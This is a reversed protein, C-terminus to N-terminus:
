LKGKINKVLDKTTKSQEKLYNKISWVPMEKKFKQVGTVVEKLARNKVFVTYISLGFSIVTGGVAMVIAYRAVALSMSLCVFCAVAATM